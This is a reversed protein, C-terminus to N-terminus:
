VYEIMRNMMFILIIKHFIYETIKINLLIKDIVFSYERVGFCVGWKSVLDSIYGDRVQFIFNHFCRFTCLVDSITHSFAYPM